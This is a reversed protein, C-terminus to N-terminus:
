NTSSIVLLVATPLLTPHTDKLKIAYILFERKYVCETLMGSPSCHRMWPNPQCLLTVKGKLGVRKTILHFKIPM